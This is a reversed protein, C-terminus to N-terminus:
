SQATADESISTFPITNESCSELDLCVIAVRKGEPVHMFRPTSAMLSDSQHGSRQSFAWYTTNQGLALRGAGVAPAYM